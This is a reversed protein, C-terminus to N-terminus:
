VFHAVAGSNLRQAVREQRNYVNNRIENSTTCVQQWPFGFYPTDYSKSYGEEYDFQTSGFGSLSNPDLEVLTDFQCAM